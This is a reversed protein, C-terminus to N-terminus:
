SYVNRLHYRSLILQHYIRHIFIYRYKNLDVIKWFLVTGSVPEFRRPSSRRGLLTHNWRLDSLEPITPGYWGQSGTTVAPAWQSGPIMLLAQKEWCSGLQVDERNRGVTAMTWVHDLSHFRAPGVLFIKPADCGWPKLCIAGFSACSGRVVYKKGFLIRVQFIFM